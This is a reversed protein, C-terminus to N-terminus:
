DAAYLEDALDNFRRTAAHTLAYLAKLDAPKENEIRASLRLFIQRGKDALQGPFFREDDMCPLFAHAAVTQNAIVAPGDDPADRTCATVIFPIAVIALILNM